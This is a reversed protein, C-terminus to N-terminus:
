LEEGGDIPGSCHVVPLGARALRRCSRQVTAQGFAIQQKEWDYVTYYHRLLPEGLLLMPAGALDDAMKHTRVEPSCDPGAYDEVQITLLPGGLVAFSLDPLMCTEKASKDPTIAKMLGESIAHPVIIGPSSTDLMGRCHKERCMSIKKGGVRIGTVTILWQGRAPDAHPAWTLSSKLKNRDYGGFAIEAHHADDDVWFGFQSPLGTKTIRGLIHFPPGISLSELGLGVIGDQPRSLFLQHDSSSDKIDTEVMITVNSCLKSSAGNRDVREGLCVVDTVFEGDVDGGAGNSAGFNVSASERYAGPPARRGGAPDVPRGDRQVDISTESKAPSYQRHQLCAASTCQSSPLLVLGSTTSFAVKLEQPEPTGLEIMGLFYGGGHDPGKYQAEGHTPRAHEKWLKVLFPSKPQGLRAEVVFPSLTLLICWSTPCWNALCTM